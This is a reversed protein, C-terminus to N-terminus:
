KILSEDERQLTSMPPMGTKLLTEGKDLVVENGNDLFKPAGIEESKDLEFINMEFADIMQEVM